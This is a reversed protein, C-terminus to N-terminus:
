EKDNVGTSLQHKQYIGNNMEKISAELRKKNAKSSLLYATTDIQKFKDKTQKNKM